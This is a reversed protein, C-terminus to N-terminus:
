FVSSTLFSRKKIDVFCFVSLSNEAYAAKILTVFPCVSIFCSFTYVSLQIDSNFIANSFRDVAIKLLSM